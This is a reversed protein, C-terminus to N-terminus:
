TILRYLLLACAAARSGDPHTTEKSVIGVFISTAGIQLARIRLTIRLM